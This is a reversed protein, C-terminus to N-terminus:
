QRGPKTGRGHRRRGVKRGFRAQLGWTKEQRQHSFGPFRWEKGLHALILVRRGCQRLFIWNGTDKQVKSFFCLLDNFFM